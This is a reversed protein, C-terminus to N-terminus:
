IYDKPDLPAADPKSFINRHICVPDKVTSNFLSSKTGIKKTIDRGKNIKLADVYINVFYNGYYLVRRTSNKIYKM